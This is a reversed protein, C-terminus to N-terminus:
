LGGLRLNALVYAVLAVAAVIMLLVGAVIGAAGDRAGRRVWRVCVWIWVVIHALSLVVFLGFSAMAMAALFSVVVGVSSLVFAM